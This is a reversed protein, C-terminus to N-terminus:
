TGPYPQFHMESDLGRSSRPDQAAGLGGAVQPKVSAVWSGWINEALQFFAGM